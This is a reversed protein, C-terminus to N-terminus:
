AYVCVHMPVICLCLICVFAHMCRICVICISMCVGTGALLGGGCVCVLLTPMNLIHLLLNHETMEVM